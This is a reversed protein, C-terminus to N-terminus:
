CLKILFDKKLVNKNTQKESDFLMIKRIILVQAVFSVKINSNSLTCKLEKMNNSNLVTANLVLENIQSVFKKIFLLDSTIRYYNTKIHSKHNQLNEKM